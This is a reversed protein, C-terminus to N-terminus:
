RRGVVVSNFYDMEAQRNEAQQRLYEARPDGTAEAYDAMAGLHDAHVTVHEWPGLRVDILATTHPSDIRGCVAESWDTLRTLFQFELHEAGESRTCYEIMPSPQLVPHSNTQVSYVHMRGDKPLSELLDEDDKPDIWAGQDRDPWAISAARQIDSRVTFLTTSSPSVMEKWLTTIDQHVEERSAEGKSIWLRDDVVYATCAKQV